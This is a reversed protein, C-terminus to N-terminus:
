SPFITLFCESCGKKLYDHVQPPLSSICLMRHLRKGAAASLKRPFDHFDIAIKEAWERCNTYAKQLVMSDSLSWLSVFIQQVSLHTPYILESTYTVFIVNEKIEDVIM